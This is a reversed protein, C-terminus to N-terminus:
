LRYKEIELFNKVNIILNKIIEDLNLIAMVHDLVLKNQNINDNPLFVQDEERFKLKGGSQTFLHVAPTWGGAIALCDCKLNIKKAGIVSMGDKSLKM